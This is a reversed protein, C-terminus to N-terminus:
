DLKSQQKGVGLQGLRVYLFVLPVLLVSRHRFSTGLNVEVLASATVFGFLFILILVIQPDRIPKLRRFRLFQSILVLYIAWWLPSELSAITIAIGANDFFPFPGCLFEIAPWILTLPEKINGPKLIHGNLSSSDQSAEVDQGILEARIKEDWMTQIKKDLSLKGLLKSMITNPNNKLYFHLSILTSDGHFTILQISPESGSESVDVYVQSVSDGSRGGTDTIDSQFIYSLAYVSTTSAFTVTPLVLAIMLFIIIKRRNVKLFLYIFCSLFIAVM